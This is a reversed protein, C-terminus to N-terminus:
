VPLVPAEKPHATCTKPRAEGAKPQAHSAAPGRTGPSRPQTALQAARRHPAPHSWGAEWGRRGPVSAENEPASLTRSSHREESAPVSRSPPDPVRAGAFTQPKTGMRIPRSLKPPSGGPRDHTQTTAVSRPQVCMRGPSAQRGSSDRRQLEAARRRGGGVQSGGPARLSRGSWVPQRRPVVPSPGAAQRVAHRPSGGVPRRTGSRRPGGRRRRQIGWHGPPRPM